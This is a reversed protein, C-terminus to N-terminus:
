EAGEGMGNECGFSWEVGQKEGREHESSYQITNFSFDSRM